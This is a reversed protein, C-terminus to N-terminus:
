ERPRAADEPPPATPESRLQERAMTEFARDALHPDRHLDFRLLRQLFHLPRPLRTM